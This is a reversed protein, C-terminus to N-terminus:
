SERGVDTAEECDKWGVEVVHRFVLRNRGVLHGLRIVAQENVLLMHGDRNLIKVSFQDVHPNERLHLAAIRVSALYQQRKLLASADHLEPDHPDVQGQAAGLHAFLDHRTVSREPPDEDLVIDEAPDLGLAEQSDHGAAGHHIPKVQGARPRGVAPESQDMAVPLRRDLEQLNHRGLRRTSREVRDELM